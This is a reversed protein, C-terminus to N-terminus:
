WVFGDILDTPPAMTATARDSHWPYHELVLVDRSRLSPDEAWTRALTRLNEHYPNRGDRCAVSRSHIARAPGLELLGWTRRRPVPCVATLPQTPGTRCPAPSRTECRRTGSRRGRKEDLLWRTVRSRPRTATWRRTSAALARNRGVCVRAARRDCNRAGGGARYLTPPHPRQAVFLSCPYQREHLISERARRDSPSETARRHPHGRYLSVHCHSRVGRAPRSAVRSGPPDPRSTRRRVTSM